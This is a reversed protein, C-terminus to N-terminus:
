QLPGVSTSQAERGRRDVGLFYIIHCTLNGAGAAVLRVELRTGAIDTARTSPQPTLEVIKAVDSTTPEAKM